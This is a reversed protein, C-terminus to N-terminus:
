VEAAPCGGTKLWAAVQYKTGKDTLVDLVEYLLGVHKYQCYGGELFLPCGGCHKGVPMNLKVTVLNTAM